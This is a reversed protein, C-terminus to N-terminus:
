ARYCERQREEDRVYVGDHTVWCEGIDVERMVQPTVQPTVQQTRTKAHDQGVELLLFLSSINHKGNPLDFSKEQKFSISHTRFTQLRNAVRSTNRDRCRRISDECGEAKSERPPAPRAGNGHMVTIGADEWRYSGRVHAVRHATLPHFVERFWLGKHPSLWEFFTDSPINSEGYFPPPTDAYCGRLITPAGKPASLGGGHTPHSIVIRKPGISSQGLVIDRKCM